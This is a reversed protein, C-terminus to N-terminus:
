SANEQESRIERGRRETKLRAIDSRIKKFQTVDEIKETVAQTRLDFLRRSLRRLEVMIEEDSLKHVEAAKM